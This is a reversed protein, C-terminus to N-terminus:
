LIDKAAKRVCDFAAKDLFGIKRVLRRTDVTQSINARVAKGEVTAFIAAEVREAVEPSQRSRWDYIARMDELTTARYRLKM